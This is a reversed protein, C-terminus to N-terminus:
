TVKPVNKPVRGYMEREFDEVLQPRREKWWMEATTVKRGDPFTLPDPLNPYPNALAEDYNAHDPAKENGNAGPRLRKIGLQDMMTQRDQDDTLTMPPPTSASQARTDSVFGGAIGLVAAACVAARGMDWRLFM